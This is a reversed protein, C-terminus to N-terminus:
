NLALMDQFNLQWCNSIIDSLYLLLWALVAEM